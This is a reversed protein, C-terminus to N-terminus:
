QTDEGALPLRVAATTGAGARRVSLTGGAEEVARTAISLGRGRGPGPGRSRPAGGDVVEVVVAGECRRGRVEVTGSGHELANAVLNGFAQALRGRDAMVAAPGAQWDYRLRRGAAAAAPRWGAATARALRDLPVVAPAARARRGSRAADLDALGGRLREVEAEFALARRLGGPERRLATAALGIATAPGRLEHAAFAVLELRRRLRVVCV